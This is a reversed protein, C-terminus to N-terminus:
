SPFLLAEYQDAAKDISFDQARAKLAETDPKTSLANAIAMALAPPDRTPVLKGYQGDALIERPGSPCDTSVVPLGAALAEIIVTPLGEYVSSLVLADAQQYYKSPDHVFGPMFVKDAIGLRRAQSSLAEKCEGKGLILLRADVEQCLLAFASLLTPYDKALKLNGVALLRRHQGFSWGPIETAAGASTAPKGIDVVPNYIVRILNRNIGAFRALDDAAGKSVCVVAHALPFFSGMTQRAILRPLYSAVIPSMSWTTHEAVVTRADVRALWRAALVAFTLPWVCALIADPKTARLYNTLSFLLKRVREIKLDVVRIDPHLESLFEGRASMLVMEVQYGRASFANALNIVVREAGGGGLDPMFISIRGKQPPRTDAAGTNSVTM